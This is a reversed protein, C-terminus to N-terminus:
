LDSNETPDNFQFTTLIARHDSLNWGSSDEWKNQDCGHPILDSSVPRLVNSRYFIFDVGLQDNRHTLHTVKPEIGHVVFYSSQFSQQTMFQYVPDNDSAENFDGCLIISCQNYLNKKKRYEEILHLFQKMQTLRLRRDYANHPFTLHINVLLLCKGHFQLHLLLGVRNGIDHLLLDVKDILQFHKRDIFIALGDGLGHTRRVYYSSYISSLHSEYLQVFLPDDLWFEQLCIIHLQLSQLLRIISLHRSRWQSEYASERDYESSLRKYCPALINWTCVSIDSILGESSM